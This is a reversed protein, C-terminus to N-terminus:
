LGGNGCEGTEIAALDPFKFVSSNVTSLAGGRNHNDAKM